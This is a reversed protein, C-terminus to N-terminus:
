RARIRFTFRQHVRAAVPVGGRQAARYHARRVADIAAEAFLPHDSLVVRFTKPDATGDERIVYDMWVEGSVNIRRLLEPYYLRPGGGLPEPCDQPRIPNVDYVGSSDLRQRSRGSQRFLVHLLEHAGDNPVDIYWKVQQDRDLLLVATHPDWQDKKRRRLLLMRSGDRAVLQPTALAVDSDHPTKMTTVILNAVNLWQDVVQPDFSAAFKLDKPSETLSSTEAWFLVGNVTDSQVLVNVSGWALRAITTDPTLQQALGPPALLALLSLARLLPPSSAM